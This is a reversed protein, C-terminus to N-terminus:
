SPPRRKLAEFHQKARQRQFEVVENQMKQWDSFAGVGKVDITDFVAKDKPRPGKDAHQGFNIL